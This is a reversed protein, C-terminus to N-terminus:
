RSSIYALSSKIAAISLSTLCKVASDFLFRVLNKLARLSLLCSHLVICYTNTRLLPKTSYFCLRNTVTHVMSPELILEVTYTVHAGHFNTSHMFYMMILAISNPGRILVLHFVSTSFHFFPRFHLHYLTSYTFFISDNWFAAEDEHDGGVIM